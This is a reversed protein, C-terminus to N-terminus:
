NRCVATASIRQGKVVADYNIKFAGEQPPVWSIFAVQAQQKWADCYAHYHRQISRLLELIDFSQNEHIIKNRTTWISDLTVIVALMM